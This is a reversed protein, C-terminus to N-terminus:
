FEYGTVVFRTVGQLTLTGTPGYGAMSFGVGAAAPIDFGEPFSGSVSDVGGTMAVTTAGSKSGAEFSFALPSGIVATGATNIRVRVVASGVTALSKTSISWSTLRLTKGSPVVAPSVTAGVAANGYWQVVSQMAEAVPAATYADLMFVRTNRGADRLDQVSFGATGQTGKTLTPPTVPSNPSLSVVAAQDAAVAATSAAKIAQTSTGDTNKIPLVQNAFMGGTGAGARLLVTASGSTFATMNARFQQLGGPTIRYLGNVTTTTQPSSTSASVANIATWTTGDLSAEFTITGVWTGTIQAAAASQGALALTVVQAAAALSGSATVDAPGRVVDVDLGNTTDGRVRDWTTGNFVHAFASVEEFDNENSRGDSPRQSSGKTLAYHFITQLRFYTQLTGGNTYVLRFFRAAPQFSFAKGTAAAITFVDTSDWDTGNSSQQVSLGDTASAHSAIVNIQIVAYDKIDESTGTFVASAGLVATSSNATSVTAWPMRVVDVDLGNVDAGILTAVGDGSYALKVVQAHGGAGTDDTLITTGSGATIAIGDAM